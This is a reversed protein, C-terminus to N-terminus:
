WLEDEGNFVTLTKHRRRFYRQRGYNPFSRKGSIYEWDDFTKMLSNIDRTNFRSMDEKNKGLCECWIEAICVYEREEVANAALPDTLWIRRQNIDLSDWNSPYKRELFDGIIGARGDVESHEHQAEEALKAAKGSLYLPEGEDYLLKAEAWIQDIEYDTMDKTVNKRAKEPYVDVPLFRRNGTDDHLFDKNNTTGIFICQRPNKESVRAYAARFQDCDKSLFHKISEVEAKRLGSLEAMEIIWAGQAQEFAEKGSVTTFTDSFWDRGLKKVFTSKYSGQPGVLILANDFKIGPSFVRAVAACLTLRAVARAYPNNDAGFYDIFLTEVRKKGDWELGNLYDRVPHFGNKEVHLRLADEVKARAAIGYVCEIYNHVGSFDSDTFPRPFSLYKNKDSHWPMRKLCYQRNDFLNLAMNGKFVPDNAFILNLNSATSEFEGKSNATLKATWSMDPEDQVEAHGTGAKGNGRKESNEGVANEAIETFDAQANALRNKSISQRVIPDELVFQEMAKYSRSKTDGESDKGQDLYGFKHIRVLDFANCLKGGAPDTGHHSYAFKDEYVVLGAATSGQTYTYRDNGVPEYMEPLFKEIADQISYARCFIGVVGRKTLPDEQKSISSRITDTEKEAVAWETIDHWDRYMGLIVDPDLMPGDQYEFYYEADLSVSPWFMLRNVDFTSQDFYDIGCIEAVKHAIAQYEEKDVDRALPIILRHRPSEPCSKHTSHIAAACDFLITFDLWFDSTSFDIDLTLLSRSLISGKDRRGKLLYGGVFGGVDKIKSQEDKSAAMYRAYTEATVVPKSLKELLKSWTTNTNRWVKSSANLGTAVNIDRDYLLVIDSM